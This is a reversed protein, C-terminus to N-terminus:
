SWSHNKYYACISSIVRVVKISWFTSHSKYASKTSSPEEKLNHHEPPPFLPPKTTKKTSENHLAARFRM